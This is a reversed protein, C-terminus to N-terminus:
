RGDGTGNVCMLEIQQKEGMPDIVAFIGYPEGRWIVRMGPDVGARWRITIRATVENQAQAAAFFQNGRLPEVKAWLRVVDAWSESQQGLADIGAVRQQLTVRQNLQGAPIVNVGV